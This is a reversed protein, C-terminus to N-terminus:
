MPVEMEINIKLHFISVCINDESPWLMPYFRMPLDTIFKEPTARGKRSITATYFFIVSEYLNKM